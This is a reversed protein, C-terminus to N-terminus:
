NTKKRFIFSEPNQYPYMCFGSLKNMFELDQRKKFDEQISKFGRSIIDGDSFLNSTVILIGSPKVASILMEYIVNKGEEDFDDEGAILDMVNEFILVDFMKSLQLNRFDKIEAKIQNFIPQNRNKNLIEEVNKELTIALGTGGFGVGLALKMLNSTGIELVSKPRIESYVEYLNSYYSSLRDYSTLGHNPIKQSLYKYVSDFTNLKPAFIQKVMTSLKSRFSPEAVIKNNM